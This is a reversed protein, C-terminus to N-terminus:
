NILVPRIIDRIQGRQSWKFISDCLYPINSNHTFDYNQEKSITLMLRICDMKNLKFCDTVKEIEQHSSIFSKEPSLEDLNQLLEKSILNNMISNNHIISNYIAKDIPNFIFAQSIGVVLSIYFEM